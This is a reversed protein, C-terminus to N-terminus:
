RKREAVCKPCKSGKPHRIGHKPCTIFDLERKNSGEPKKKIQRESMKVNRRIKLYRAQYGLRLFHDLLWVFLGLASLGLAFGSSFNQFHLISLVSLMLALSAAEVIATAMQDHWRKSKYGQLNLAFLYFLFSISLCYIAIHFGQLIAVELVVLALLGSFSFGALALIHTRHAERDQEEETPIDGIEGRFVLCLLGRSLLPFFPACYWLIEVQM